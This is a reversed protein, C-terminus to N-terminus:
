FARELSRAKQQASLHFLLLYLRDARSCSAPCACRRTAFGAGDIAVAFARLHQARGYDPLWLKSGTAGLHSPLM